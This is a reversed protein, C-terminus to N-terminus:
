VQLQKKQLETAGGGYAACPARVSGARDPMPPSDALRCTTIPNRVGKGFFEQAPWQQFLSLPSALSNPQAPMGTGSNRKGLSCLNVQNESSLTILPLFVPYYRWSTDLHTGIILMFNSSQQQLFGHTKKIFAHIHKTNSKGYQWKMTYIPLLTKLKYKTIFAPSAPSLCPPLLRARFAHQCEAWTYDLAIWRSQPNSTRDISFLAQSGFLHFLYGCLGQLAQSIFSGM